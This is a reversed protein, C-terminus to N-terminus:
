PILSSVQFVHGDVTITGAFVMGSNELDVLDVTSDISYDASFFSIVGGSLSLSGTMKENLKQPNTTEDTTSVNSTLVDTVTGNITYGSASDHWDTFSFTGTLVFPDSSPKATSSYTVALFGGGPGPVDPKSYEYPETNLVTDFSPASRVGSSIAKMVTKVDSVSPGNDTTLNCGLIVFVVMFVLAKINKM